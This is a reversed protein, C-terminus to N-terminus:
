STILLDNEAAIKYLDCYIDQTKLFPTKGRSVVVFDYGRKLRPALQVIGARLIRKARNRVVAGGVKKSATIGFRNCSLPNRVYYLALCPTVASRGRKYARIFDSNKKLSNISQM